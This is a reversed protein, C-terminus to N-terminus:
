ALSGSAQTALTSDSRQDACRIPARRKVPTHEVLRPGRLTRPHTSNRVCRASRRPDTRQARLGQPHERDGTEHDRERQARRQHLPSLRGANQDREPPEGDDGEHPVDDEPARAPPDRHPSTRWASTGPTKKPRFRATKKAPAVCLLTALAARIPESAGNRMTGTPAHSEVLVDTPARERERQDREPAHREHQEARRGVAVRRQLAVHEAEERHQQQHGVDRRRPVKAPLHVDGGEHRRDARDRGSVTSGSATTWPSTNPM